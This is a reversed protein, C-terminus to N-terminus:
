GYLRALREGYSTSSFRGHSWEYARAAVGLATSPHVLAETVASAISGADDAVALFVDPGDVGEAGVSSAVVPVGWMMAIVAKLKVGAGLRMPAVAVSARRYYPALSPVRGTLEVHDAGATARRVRETPDAGAIMLRAEPVQARVRPWVDQVLWLAADENEPRWMAGVFLVDPDTPVERRPAAPMEEDDLPPPLVLVHDTRGRRALLARDKDSLVVATQLARLARRESPVSLLLRVLALLRHAVPVGPGLLKRRHGQSVVDHFVGVLPTEPFSRRLRPALVVADFWQLEIRDARELLARVEEDAALARRFPGTAVFPLARHLLRARRRRSGDRPDLLVRGYSGPAPQTMAHANAPTWPCIVTVDHLQSLAEAHRRYLDGGAHPIGRYPMYPAISVIRM